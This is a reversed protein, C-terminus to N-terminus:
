SLKPRRGFGPRRTDTLPEFTRPVNYAEAKPMIRSEVGSFLLLDEHLEKSTEIGFAGNAAWRVIGIIRGINPLQLTVQDGISLDINAAKAGLGHSSVNRILVDCERGSPAILTGRVIRSSRKTRSHHSDQDSM